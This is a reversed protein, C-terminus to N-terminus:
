ATHDHSGVLSVSALPLLPPSRALCESRFLTRCFTLRLLTDASPSTTAQLSSLGWAADPPLAGTPTALPQSCGSDGRCMRQRTKPACMKSLHELGWSSM